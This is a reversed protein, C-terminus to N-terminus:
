HPNVFNQMCMFHHKLSYLCPLICNVVLSIHTKIYECMLRLRYMQAQIYYIYLFVFGPKPVYCGVWCPLRRWVLTYEEHPDCSDFWLSFPNAKGM